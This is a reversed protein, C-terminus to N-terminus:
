QNDASRRPKHVPTQRACPEAGRTHLACRCMPQMCSYVAPPHLLGLPLVYERDARAGFFSVRMPFKYMQGAGSEVQGVLKIHRLGDAVRTLAAVDGTKAEVHGVKQGGGLGGPVTYVAIANPDYRNTPERRLHLPEKNRRYGNNSYHQIGVCRSIVHGLLVEEDEDDALLDVVVAEKAKAKSKAKSEPKSKVDQPKAENDTLAAAKRKKDEVKPKLEAAAVEDHKFDSLEVRFSPRSAAAVAAARKPRSSDMPGPFALIFPTPV